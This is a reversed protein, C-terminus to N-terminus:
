VVSLFDAESILWDLNLSSLPFVAPTVESSILGSTWEMSIQIKWTVFPHQNQDLNNSPNKCRHPCFIFFRVEFLSPPSVSPSFILFCFSFYIAEQGKFSAMICWDVLTICYNLLWQEPILPRIFLSVDREVNTCNDEMDDQRLLFHFVM